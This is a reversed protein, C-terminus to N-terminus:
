IKRTLIVTGKVGAIETLIAQRRSQSLIFPLLM